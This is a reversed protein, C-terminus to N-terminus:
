AHCGGASLRLRRAKRLGHSSVLAVMAGGRGAPVRVCLSGLVGSRLGGGVVPVAFGVRRGSAEPVAACWGREFVVDSMVIPERAGYLLKWKVLWIVSL